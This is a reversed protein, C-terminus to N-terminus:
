QEAKFGPIKLNTVKRPQQSTQARMPSHNMVTTHTDTHTHINTPRPKSKLRTRSTEGLCSTVFRGSPDERRALLDLRQPRHANGTTTKARPDSSFPTSIVEPKWIDRKKIKHRVFFFFFCLDHDECTTRMDASSNIQVSTNLPFLQIHLFFIGGKGNKLILNLTRM